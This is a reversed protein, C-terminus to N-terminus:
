HTVLLDMAVLPLTGNGISNEFRYYLWGWSYVLEEVVFIVVELWYEIFIGVGIVL